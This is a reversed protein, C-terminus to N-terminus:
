YMGDETDVRLVTTKEKKIYEWEPQTNSGINNEHSLVINSYVRSM